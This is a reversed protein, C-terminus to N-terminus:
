LILSQLLPYGCYNRRSEPTRDKARQTGSHQHNHLINVQSGRLGLSIYLLPFTIKFSVTATPRPTDSVINRDVRMKLGKTSTTTALEM